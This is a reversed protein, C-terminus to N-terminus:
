KSLSVDVESTELSAGTWNVELMVGQLTLSGGKVMGFPAEKAVLSTRTREVKIYSDVKPKKEDFDVDGDKM